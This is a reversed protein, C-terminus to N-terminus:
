LKMRRALQRLKLARKVSLWLGFAGKMARYVFWSQRSLEPEGLCASLFERQLHSPIGARIADRIRAFSRARTVLRCRNLDILLFAPADAGGRVLINGDSLDRHIVGADHVSRVFNGLAAAFRADPGDPWAPHQKRFVVRLEAAGDRWVTVLSSAGLIGWHRSEITALAPPTGVGHEALAMAALFSKRTKSRRFVSQALRLGAPRAFLKVAVEPGDPWAAGPALKIVRNRAQHVTEGDGSEARSLWDEIASRAKEQPVGQVLGHGFRTEVWTCGAPSSNNRGSM